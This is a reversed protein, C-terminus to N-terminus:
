NFAFDFNVNGHIQLGPLSSKMAAAKLNLCLLINGNYFYQFIIIIQLANFNTSYLREM